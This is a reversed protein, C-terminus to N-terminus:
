DLATVLSYYCDNVLVGNIETNAPVIEDLKMGGKELVRRSALHEESCVAIFKEIAFTDMAFQIVRGVAETAYGKGQANEQLIFGVEAVRKAGDRSCISILGMPESLKKERIVWTLWHSSKLNGPCLEKEFTDRIAAESRITRIHQM